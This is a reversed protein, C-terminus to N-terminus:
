VTVITVNDRIGADTLASEIKTITDSNCGRMYITRLSTCQHFMLTSDTVNSLDWGSLDLTILNSCDFCMQRTMTINSTDWGSLNLTVLSTCGQVISSVQLANSTNWGSLDLSTLSTCDEFMSDLYEFNSIDWTKIEAELLLSCSNFLYTGFVQLPSNIYSAKVLNTDSFSILHESGDILYYDYNNDSHDLIFSYGDNRNYLKTEGKPYVWYNGLVSPNQCSEISDFDSVALLGGKKYEAPTVPSGLYYKQLKSYQAFNPM